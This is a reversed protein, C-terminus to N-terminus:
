SVLKVIRFGNGGVRRRKGRLSLLRLPALLLLIVSPAIAFFYQEFAFTFDFGDRCGEVVPGFASDASALCLVTSDNM